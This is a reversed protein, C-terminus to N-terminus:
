QVYGLAELAKKQEDSLTVGSGGSAGAFSVGDGAGPLPGGLARFPGATGEIRKVHLEADLPYLAFPTGADAVLQGPKRFGYVVFVGDSTLTDSATTLWPSGLHKYMAQEMAVATEVHEAVVNTKCGPDTSLDCLGLTGARLDAYLDYPPEHWRLRLTDFRSTEAYVGTPHPEVREGRLEPSRDVGDTAPFPVQLLGAVTPALDELGVRGPIVMPTLGPGGILWPVHLVEPYLTHGHGWSGREGFEEGHDSTFVIIAKRGAREWGDLFKGLSDDIHAIAEDYQAIQHDLQAPAVPHDLYYKYNKYKADGPEPARDFKTDWPAPPKYAYHADYTHLFLFMPAGAPAQGAKALADALVQDISAVHQLNTAEDPIDYDVFQDFGREFGYRDSVFLTSVVGITTYGATQFAEPLWPVDAAIHRDGEVAGHRAPLTGSLMTAHSPLTWPSVSWAQDFRVAARADLRPTTDRSYGYAGVHDARLTDVSILIVDPRGPDGIPLPPAAPTCSFLWFLLM